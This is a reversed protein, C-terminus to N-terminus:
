PLPPLGLARIVWPLAGCFQLRQIQRVHPANPIVPQPFNQAFFGTVVAAELPAEGLHTEQPPGGESSVANLFFALDLRGSGLCAWSWDILIVQDGRLCLNDSRLDFHTLATGTTVCAREAEILPPLARELWASGVLGSKLLPSPDLALKAWGDSPMAEVKLLDEPAPTEHLSRIADVVRELQGPEWPPPWACRSLDELILIPSADHAESGVLSPMCPLGLATYLAIERNTATATFDDTGIKVFVSRSPTKVILRLAATYGGSPARVALVPEGLLREVREKLALPWIRGGNDAWNDAPRDKM